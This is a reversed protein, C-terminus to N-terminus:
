LANSPHEIIGDLNKQDVSRVRDQKAVCGFMTMTYFTFTEQLKEFFNAKMLTIDLRYQKPIRKRVSEVRM